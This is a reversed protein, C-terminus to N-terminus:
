AAVAQELLIPHSFGPRRMARAWSHVGTSIRTFVGCRRDDDFNEGKIMPNHLYDV